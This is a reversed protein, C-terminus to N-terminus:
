KKDTKPKLEFSQYTHGDNKEIQLYYVHQTAGDKLKSLTGEWSTGKLNTVSKPDDSSDGCGVFMVCLTFLCMFLISKKM